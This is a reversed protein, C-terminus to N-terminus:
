ENIGFTSIIGFLSIYQHASDPHFETEERRRTYWGTPMDYLLAWLYLTNANYGDISRCPQVAEDYVSQRLKTVWKM